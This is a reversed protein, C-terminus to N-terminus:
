PTTPRPRTNVRAAAAVAAHLFQRELGKNVRAFPLITRLYATGITIAVALGTRAGGSIPVFHALGEAFGVAVLDFAEETLEFM